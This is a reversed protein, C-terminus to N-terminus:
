MADYIQDLEDAIEGRSPIIGIFPNIVKTGHNRIDASSVTDLVKSRQQKIDYSIYDEAM